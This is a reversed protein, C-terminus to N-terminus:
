VRTDYFVSHGKQSHITSHGEGRAGNRAILAVPCGGGAGIGKQQKRPIVDEEWELGQCGRIQKKV